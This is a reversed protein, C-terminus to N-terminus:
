GVGDGASLSEAARSRPVKGSIASYTLRTEGTKGIGNLWISELVCMVM